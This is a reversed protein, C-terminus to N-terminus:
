LGIFGIVKGSYYKLASLGLDTVLKVPHEWAYVTISIVVLFSLVISLYFISLFIFLAIEVLEIKQYINKPKKVIGPITKAWEHGFRCFHDSFPTLYAGIFHILMYVYWLAAWFATVVGIISLQSLWATKLLWATAAKTGITENIKEKIASKKKKEDRSKKIKEKLKKSYSKTKDGAKKVAQGSKEITQGPLKGIKGGVKSGAQAGAKAGALIGEPGGLVGGIAGATAGVAGGIGKGALEGGAKVVKGGIEMGKGGAQMATGATQGASAATQATKAMTDKPAQVPNLKEAPAPWAQGTGLGGSESVGQPIPGQKFQEAKQSELNKRDTRQAVNLQRRYQLDRNQDFYSPEPDPTIPNQNLQRAPEAM